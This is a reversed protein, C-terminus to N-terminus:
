VFDARMRVLREAFAHTRVQDGTLGMHDTELQWLYDFVSGSTENRMLLECIGPAYSDYEDRAEPIEQIGIPDWETLLAVRVRNLLTSTGADM